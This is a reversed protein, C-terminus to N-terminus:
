VNSELPVGAACLPCDIPLWLPNPREAIGHLPINEQDALAAASPGLVLLSALAVPVAGCQHLDALTGRVASGASIVDNVVAVRKSSVRPRLPDPLRYEVPFLGEADPHDFRETYYFEVNLHQAAMLSVFAGEVLPGCIAEPRYPELRFALDDVFQAVARPQLFLLQLDLWSDSHHGSEYRFHGTRSPILTVLDNTM